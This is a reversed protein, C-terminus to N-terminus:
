WQLAARLAYPLAWATTFFRTFRAKFCCAALRFYLRLSRLSRGCRSVYRVVTPLSRWLKVM